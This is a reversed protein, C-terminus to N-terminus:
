AVQNAIVRALMEDVEAAAIADNHDRVSAAADEPREFTAVLRNGFADGEYVCLKSKPSSLYGQFWKKSM